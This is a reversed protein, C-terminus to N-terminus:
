YGAEVKLEAMKATRGHIPLVTDVDLKLRQVNDWLNATFPNIAQPKQTTVPGRPSYADTVILIKEKPLYGILMGDVHGLGKEVYLELTRTADSLMGKDGVTQFKATANARAMRDPSITRPTAFAAEYYAKNYEHTVVTMGEAVAARVGGSH